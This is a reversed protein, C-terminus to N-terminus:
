AGCGCTIGCLMMQEKNSTGCSANVAKPRHGSGCGCNPESVRGSAGCGSSVVNLNTAKEGSWAAINSLAM